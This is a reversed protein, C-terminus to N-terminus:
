HAVSFSATAELLDYAHAAPALAKDAEAASLPELSADVLSQLRLSRPAVLAALDAVDAVPLIGPLYLLDMEPAVSPTKLTAPLAEIEVESIRRDLSAALLGALGTVLSGAAALRVRRVDGRRQLYTVCRMVDWAWAGPLSRGLALASLHVHDRGSATEGVDRQDFAMVARGQELEALAVDHTLAAKGEAHLYLTVDFPGEDRPRLLVAPILVDPESRFWFREGAYGGIPETSTVRVDLDGEQPRGGLAEWLAETTQLAQTHHEGASRPSLRGPLRSVMGTYLDAMTQHGAPLGDPLVKLYEVGPVEEDAAPSPGKLWIDLWRYAQQRMEANYEHPSYSEFSAFRSGDYLSYIRAIREVAMRASLIPFGSDLIGHMLLLARPAILATIETLDAFRLLGPITECTCFGKEMYDAVMEVSCVPISVKIREDLASVYMTQNGGGSVGTCAIRESDVDARSILYDIARMNDWTQIGEVTQGAAFLFWTRRHGQAERDNYGVADIALTVYGRRALGVCRAQVAPDYRGVAYHGHPCLVAPAPGTLGHPVFVSATAHFGPRSEFVVNEIRYGQRQHTSTIRANLPTREPFGGLAAILDSRLQQRRAAWSARTHEVARPRLLRDGALVLHQRMMDAYPEPWVSGLWSSASPQISM